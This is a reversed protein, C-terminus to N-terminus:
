SVYAMLGWGAGGGSLSLFCKRRGELPSAEHEEGKLPSAQGSRLRLPLLPIPDM